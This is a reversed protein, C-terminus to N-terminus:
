KLLPVGTEKSKRVEEEQLICKAIDAFKLWDLVNHNKLLRLYKILLTWNRSLSLLKGHLTSETLKIKSITKLTATAGLNIDKKCNYQAHKNVLTLNERYCVCTSNLVAKPHEAQYFNFASM